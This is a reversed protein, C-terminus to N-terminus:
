NANSIEQITIECRPYAKDVEGFQYVIKPIWKYNDDELKGLEVLCDSFFKDIVSGVNAVDFLRRTKPYITYTIVIPKDLKPLGMVANKM